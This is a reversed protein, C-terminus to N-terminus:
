RSVQLKIMDKINGNDIDNEACSIELWGKGEHKTFHHMKDWFGAWRFGNIEINQYTVKDNKM